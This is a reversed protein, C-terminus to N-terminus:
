AGRRYTASCGKWLIPSSVISFRLLAAAIKHAMVTASEIV